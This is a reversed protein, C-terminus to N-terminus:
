KGVAVKAKKATEPDVVRKTAAKKVKKPEVPAEADTTKTNLLNTGIPEQQENFDSMVEEQTPVVAVAEVAALPKKAKPVKPVKAPKVINKVIKVENKPDFGSYFATQTELDDKIFLSSFLGETRMEEPLKSVFWHCVAMLNRHKASLAPKKTRKAREAKSVEKQEPTFHKEREEIVAEDEEEEDEECDDEILEDKALFVHEPLPQTAKTAKVNTKTTTNMKTNKHFEKKLFFFKL